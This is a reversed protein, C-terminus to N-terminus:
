SRVEVVILVPRHDSAVREDVVRMELVRFRSGPRLLVYDIRKEPVDSPFTSASTSAGADAFHRTLTAIPASGPTANLDGVLVIPADPASAGTVFLRVISDVQMRRMATNATHDLHTGLFVLMRGTHPLRVVAEGVARPEYGSDAPLPHTRLSEVPLGVLLAEGYGGGDYDMAKAFYARMGTLNGLAATQDVRGTRNTVSDVEQLAVLHPRQARIVSALRALDLREDTGAGHHINYTLIRVTDTAGATTAEGGTSTRPACSAVALLLGAIASAHATVRAFRM